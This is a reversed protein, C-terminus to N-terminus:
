KKHIEGTKHKELSESIKDAAKNYHEPTREDMIKDVLTRWEERDIKGDSNQDVAYMMAKLQVTGVNMGADKLASKLERSNIKGSQDVDIRDFLTEMHQKNDSFKLAAGAEQWEQYAWYTAYTAAAAGVPKAAKVFFLKMSM